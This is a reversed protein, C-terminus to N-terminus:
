NEWWNSRGLAVLVLRDVGFVFPYSFIEIAADSDSDRVHRKLAKEAWELPASLSLKRAQAVLFYCLSTAASM